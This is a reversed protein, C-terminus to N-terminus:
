QVRPACVPIHSRPTMNVSTRYGCAILRRRAFTDRQEHYLARRVYTRVFVYSFVRIGINKKRAENSARSDISIRRYILRSLVIGRRCDSVHM